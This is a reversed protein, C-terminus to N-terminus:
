KTEGAPSPPKANAPGIYFLATRRSGLHIKFSTADAPIQVAPKTSQPTFLALDKREVGKPFKVAVVVETAPRDSYDTVLALFRDGQGLVVIRGPATEVSFHSCPKGAQIIPWYPELRSLARAYHELAKGDVSHFPRLLVAKAGALFAELTQEQLDEHRVLPVPASRDECSGASLIVGAKGGPPLPEALRAILSGVDAPTRRGALPGDPDVLLLDFVDALMAREAMLQKKDAETIGNPVDVVAILQLPRKGNRVPPKVATRAQTLEKRLSRYLAAYQRVHFEAWAANLEAHEAPKATFQAPEVFALDEHNKALYGRFAAVTRPRFCPPHSVRRLDTVLITSGGTALEFAAPALRRLDAVDQIVPCFTGAVPKGQADAARLEGPVTPGGIDFWGGQALGAKDLPAADKADLRSNLLISGIGMGPLERALTEARSAVLDVPVDGIGTLLHGSPRVRPIRVIEVDLPQVAQEGGRWRAHYFVEFRGVVRETKLWLRVPRKGASDFLKADKEAHVGFVHRTYPRGELTISAPEAPKLELGMACRGAGLELDRPVDVVIELARDGNGNQFSWIVDLFFPCEADPSAYAAKHVPYDLRAGKNGCVFRPLDALTGEFMALRDLWVKSPAQRLVFGVRCDGKFSDSNVEVAFPVWADRDLTGRIPIMQGFLALHLWPVVDPALPYSQRRVGLVVYNTKPKIGKAMANWEGWKRDATEDITIAHGSRYGDAEWRYTGGELVGPPRFPIHPPVAGREVWLQQLQKWLPSDKAPGPWFEPQSHHWGDPIGNRDADLEFDSNPLLNRPVPPATPPEAAVVLGGPLCAATLIAAVAILKLTATV